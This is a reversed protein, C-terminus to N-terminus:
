SGRDRVFRAIEALALFCAPGTPLHEILAAVDGLPQRRLSAPLADLDALLATLRGALAELRGAVVPGIVGAEVLTTSTQRAVAFYRRLRDADHPILVSTVRPGLAASFAARARRGARDRDLVLYLRQFRAFRRIVELSVGAGNLGVTPLGLVDALILQDVQGEVVGIVPQDQAAPWGLLPKRHGPPLPLGLYKPKCDLDIAGTVPHRFARGSAWVVGDDRWEPFVIRGAFTERGDPQILAGRRPLRGDLRHYRLIGDLRQAPAPDIPVYGLRRRTITALDLGRSRLYALAPPHALLQAHYHGVAVTLCHVCAPETWGEPQSTVDPVPASIPQSAAPARPLPHGGPARITPDLYDVAALFDLGKTKALWTFIDGYEGCGFCKYGPAHGLFVHFSPTKERHFPCLGRYSRGSRTLAVTTEVEDKIRLRLTSLIHEPITRTPPPMMM